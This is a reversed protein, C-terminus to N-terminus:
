LLVLLMLLLLLLLLLLTPSITTICCHFIDVSLSYVLTSSHVNVLGSEMATSMAHVMTSASDWHVTPQGATSALMGWHATVHTRGLSMSVSPMM